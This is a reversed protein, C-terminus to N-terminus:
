QLSRTLRSWEELLVGRELIVISKNWVNQYYRTWMENFITSYIVIDRPSRSARQTGLSVLYTVEDDVLQVTVAEIDPDDPRSDRYCALSFNVQGELDGIQSEIWERMAANARVIRRYHVGTNSRIAHILRAYYLQGRPTRVKSPPLNDLYTLDVRKRASLAHSELSDFFEDETNILHADLSQLGHEIPHDREAAGQHALALGEDSTSHMQQPVHDSAEFDAGTGGPGRIRASVKAKNRFLIFGVIVVLALLFVVAITVLSDNM